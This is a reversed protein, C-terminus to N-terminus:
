ILTHWGGDERFRLKTIRSGHDADVECHYRSSITGGFGNKADFDQQITVIGTKDNKESDWSWAADFSGRDMMASQVLSKCASVAVRENFNEWRASKPKLPEAEQAALKVESSAKADYKAQAAEAQAQTIQFREKNQCDAFFQLESRTASESISVLEVKDCQDSEAAAIAAWEMLSNAREFQRKGLREYTKGFDTRNMAMVADAGVKEQPTEATAKESAKNPAGSCAALSAAIACAAAFRFSIPFSATFRSTTM